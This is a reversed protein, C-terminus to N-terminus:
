ETGPPAEFCLDLAERPNELAIEAAEGQSTVEFERRRAVYWEGDQTITATM